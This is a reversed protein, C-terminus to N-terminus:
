RETRTPVSANVNDVAMGTYAPEVVWPQAEAGSLVRSLPWAAFAEVTATNVASGSTPGLFAVGFRILDILSTTDSRYSALWDVALSWQSRYQRAFEVDDSYEMYSTFAMLGLIHYDPLLYAIGRVAFSTPNTEPSYGPVPGHSTSFNSFRTESTTTAARRLVSSGAPTCSTELGSLAIAAHGTSLTPFYNEHVDYEPLVAAADTMPNRYIFQGETDQATVNCIYASQDQWAGFSFAGTTSLSSNEGVYYDSSSVNPIQTQSLSAALHGSRVTTSIRYWQGEQVDFPVPFSGLSYSKLTTQNIFSVGYGLSATSAGFLTKNTNPLDVRGPVQERPEGPRSRAIPHWLQLRGVM